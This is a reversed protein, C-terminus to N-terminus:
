VCTGVKEYDYKRYFWKLGGRIVALFFHTRVCIWYIQISHQYGSSIHCVFPVFKFGNARPWFLIM